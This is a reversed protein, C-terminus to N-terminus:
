EVNSVERNRRHVIQARILVIVRQALFLVLALFIAARTPYAGEPTGGQSVAWGYYALGIFLTGMVGMINRGEATRYWPAIFGYVLVFIGSMIAAMVILVDGIEKWNM